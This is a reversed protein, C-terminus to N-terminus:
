TDYGYPTRDGLLLLLQCRLIHLVITETAILECHNLPSSRIAQQRETTLQRLVDVTLLALM